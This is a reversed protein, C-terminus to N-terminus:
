VTCNFLHTQKTITGTRIFEIFIFIHANNMHWFCLAIMFEFINSFVQYTQRNQLLITHPYTSTTHLLKRPTVCGAAKKVLMHLTWWAVTPKCWLVCAVFNSRKDTGHQSALTKTIMCIIWMSNCVFLIISRSVSRLALWYKKDMCGTVWSGSWQANLQYFCMKYCSVM